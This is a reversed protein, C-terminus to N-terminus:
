GAPGPSPERLVGRLPADIGNGRSANDDLFPQARVSRSDLALYDLIRLAASRNGVMRNGRVVPSGGIVVLGDIRHDVLSNESLTDSGDDAFVSVVGYGNEYLRNGHVVSKGGRNLLIGVAQNHDIENDSLELGFTEVAVVGNRLGGQIRNGRVRAGSGFLSLASERAGVFDNNVVHLPVNGAVVSIQDASFTNGEITLPRRSHGLPSALVAWIAAERHGSFRNDSVTVGAAFDRMVIGLGSGEFTGSRVALDAARSGVLIATGCEVFDVQEIKVGPETVVVAAEPSGVFRLKSLRSFPASIKLVPGGGLESGDIVVTERRGEIVVGHSNVVAPLPTRVEIRPVALVILARHSLRDAEFLAERLTSPGRDRSSTVLLEVATRPEVSPRLVRIRAELLAVLGLLAVVSVLAADRRRNRM